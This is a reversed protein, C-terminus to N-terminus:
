ERVQHPGLLLLEVNAVDDKPFALRDRVDLRREIMGDATDM